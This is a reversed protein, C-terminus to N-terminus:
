TGDVRDRSAFGYLPSSTNGISNVIVAQPYITRVSIYLRYKCTNLSGNFVFHAYEIALKFFAFGCLQSRFKKQLM